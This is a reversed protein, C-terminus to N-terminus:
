SAVEVTTGAAHGGLLERLRLLGRRAHTKVTGLPIGMHRAIEEHSRGHMVSLEIVQRQEPRLQQVARVARDAEERRELTDEAQSEARAPMTAENIDTERRRSSRRRRDILRRRAIMAVFTPESAVTADYRGASEWLAVFIEQVAEEAEVRRTAGEYRRALSWVLGGYRDICEQVAAADGRAIRPLLPPSAAPAPTATSVFASHRHTRDSM